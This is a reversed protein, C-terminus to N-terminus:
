RLMSRFMQLITYISEKLTNTMPQLICEDTTMTDVTCVSLNIPLSKFDNELGKSALVEKVVDSIIEGNKIGNKQIKKYVIFQALAKFILGNDIEALIKWYKKAVEHMEKPELGMAVLMAMISGSSTGSVYEPRIGLEYLATVAGIHAIGQLGGGSFVFGIADKRDKM